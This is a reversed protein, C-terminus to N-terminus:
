SLEGSYLIARVPSAEGGAIKLPLAVLNYIGQPVDTLVLGELIAMKHRYFEQHGELSKSKSHDMSPTDIGILRVKKQALWDIVEPSLFCFDDQWTCVDQISNTKFLVRPAVIDVPLLKELTIAFPSHTPNHIPNNTSSDTSSNTSSSISSNTSPHLPNEAVEQSSRPSGSPNKLAM